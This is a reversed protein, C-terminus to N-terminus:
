CEHIIEETNDIECLAITSPYPSGTFSSRMVRIFSVKRWNPESDYIQQFTLYVRNDTYPIIEIIEATTNPYNRIKFKKGIHLDANVAFTIAREYDAKTLSSGPYYSSGGSYVVATRKELPEVTEGGNTIKLAIAM